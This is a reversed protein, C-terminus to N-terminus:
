LNSALKQEQKNLSFEYKKFFTKQEFTTPSTNTILKIFELDFKSM